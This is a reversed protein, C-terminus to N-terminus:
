GEVTPSKNEQPVVETDDATLDLDFLNESLPVPMRGTFVVEIRAGKSPKERM